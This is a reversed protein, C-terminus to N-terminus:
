KSGERRNKETVRLMVLLAGTGGQSSPAQAFAAVTPIQVLWSPVMRKLLPANGPSGHGQGHVVRVCRLGQNVAERLFGALQQRAQDRRLGHLDIQAQVAWVGRRLKRPLEPGVDPHHFALGDDAHLLPEVDFQDSIAEHLAAASARERKVPRSQARPVRSESRHDAPIPTVSGVNRAFLTGEHQVRAQEARELPERRSGRVQKKIEPLSIAQRAGRSKKM